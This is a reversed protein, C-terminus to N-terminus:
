LSAAPPIQIAQSRHHESPQSIETGHVEKLTHQGSINNGLSAYEPLYLWPEIEIPNM